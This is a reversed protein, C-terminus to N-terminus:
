ETAYFRKTIDSYENGMLDLIETWLPKAKQTGMRDRSKFLVNNSVNAQFWINDDVEGQLVESSWITSQVFFKFDFGSYIRDLSPDEMADQAQTPDGGWYMGDDTIQQADNVTPCLHLMDLGVSLSDIGGFWLPQICFKELIPAMDNNDNNDDSPGDDAPQELDGLLYGTRRNLLVGQIQGGDTSVVIVVPLLDAQRDAGLHRPPPQTLGFKALLSPAPKSSWGLKLFDKGGTSENDDSDNDGFDGDECFKRPNAILVTGPRIGEIPKAWDEVITEKDKDDDTGLGTSEGQQQKRAFEILEEVSGISGEGSNDDDSSKGDASGADKTADFLNSMKSKFDAISRDDMKEYEDDDDEDDEEDNGDENLDFDEFKGYFSSWLTTVRSVYIDSATAVTNDSSHLQQIHYFATLTSTVVVPTTTFANCIFQTQQHVCILLLLAAKIVIDQRSSFSTSQSANMM